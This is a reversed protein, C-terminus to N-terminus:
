FPTGNSNGFYKTKMMQVPLSKMGARREQLSPDFVDFNAEELVAFFDSTELGGLFNGFSREQLDKDLSKFYDRAHEVHANGTTAFDFVAESLKANDDSSKELSM